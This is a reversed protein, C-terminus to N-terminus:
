KARSPTVLSIRKRQYNLVEGQHLNLESPIEFDAIIMLLLSDLKEIDVKGKIERRKM